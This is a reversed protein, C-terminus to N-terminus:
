PFFARNASFVVAESEKFDGDDTVLGVNNDLCVQEIFQDNLEGRSNVIDDCEVRVWDCDVNLQLMICDETVYSVNDAADRFVAEAASSNRYAKWSTTDGSQRLREFDARILRNHFESIVIPTSFLKVREKKALQYLHSYQDARSVQYNYTGYIKLWVNTDFLLGSVGHCLSDVSGIQNTVRIRETMLSQKKSKKIHKKTLM